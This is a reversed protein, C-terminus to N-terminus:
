NSEILCKLGFSMRLSKNELQKNMVHEKSHLDNLMADPYELRSLDVIDDVVDVVVTSSNCYTVTCSTCGGMTCAM